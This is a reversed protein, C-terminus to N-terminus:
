LRKGVSYEAVRGKVDTERDDALHGHEHSLVQLSRKAFPMRRILMSPAVHVTQRKQVAARLEPAHYTVDLPDSTSLGGGGRKIQESGKAASAAALVDPVGNAVV